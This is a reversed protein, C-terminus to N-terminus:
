LWINILETEEDKVKFDLEGDPTYLIVKFPLFEIGSIKLDRQPKRSKKSMEKMIKEKPYDRFLQNLKDIILDIEISHPYSNEIFDSKTILLEQLAPVEKLVKVEVQKGVPGRKADSVSFAKQRMLIM